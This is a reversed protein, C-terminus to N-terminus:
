DPEPCNVLETVFTRSVYFASFELSGSFIAELPSSCPTLQTYVDCFSTLNWLVSIESNVASLVECHVLLLHLATGFMKNLFDIDPIATSKATTDPLSERHPLM